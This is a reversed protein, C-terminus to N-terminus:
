NLNGIIDSLKSSNLMKEYKIKIDKDKDKYINNLTDFFSKAYNIKEREKNSVDEINEYGKTEIVLIHRKNGKEVLYAFDPSYSGLPTNINIRPLKAFVKIDTINNGLITAKEIESDYEIANDYLWKDQMNFSRDGKEIDSILEQMQGIVGGKIIYEQRENDFDETEHLPLPQSSVNPQLESINIDYGIQTTIRDKVHKDICRILLKKFERPNNEPMVISKDIKNLIQICVVIPLHLNQSIEQALAVYNIPKPTIQLNTEIDTTTARIERDLEQKTTIAKIPEIRVENNMSSVINEILMNTDSPTMNKVKFVSKSNIIHWLEQFQEYKEKKIVLKEKARKTNGNEIFNKHGDIHNEFKEYNEIGVKQIMQEKCAQLKLIANPQIEYVDEYENHVIVENDEAIGIIRIAINEAVNLANKLTETKIFQLIGSSNNRIENQINEVFAREQANIIVDLRNIRDFLRDDVMNEITQRIGQQNVCIRLGRGIQQLASIDNNGVPSLKCLTFVNPSDWGEQLAWISFIFRLPTEFSLLKEKDRLILDIGQKVQEDKTGKDGSFYGENVILKGDKYDQELYELYSKYKAKGSLKEIVSRREEEYLKEFIEKVIGNSKDLKNRYDDINSIFFLSLAKIKKEFLEIEKEFHQRISLRLMEEIDKEGLTYSNAGLEIKKNNSLIISTKNIKRIPLGNFEDGQKLSKFKEENNEYYSAKIPKAKTPNISILVDSKEQTSTTYVTIRKVLNQKFAQLSDLRYVMNSLEQGKNEKPYTAGFRIVIKERFKDFFKNFAEGTFRHPEDMIITQCSNSLLELPTLKKGNIYASSDSFEENSTRNIKKNDDSISQPTLILVSLTTSSIFNKLISINNEGAYSFPTLQTKYKEKFYSRTIEINKLVGERIPVSPVLIIFKNEGFNQSLEFITQLYTLTKGTGTEMLVDLRKSDSSKTNFNNAKAHEELAEKFSAGQRTQSIISIINDVCDKQYQQETFQLKMYLRGSIIRIKVYGIMIVCQM